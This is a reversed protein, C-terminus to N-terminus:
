PLTIQESIAFYNKRFLGQLIKGKLDIKKRMSAPFRTFCAFDILLIKIKDDHDFQSSGIFMAFLLKDWSM